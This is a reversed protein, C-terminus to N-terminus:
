VLERWKNEMLPPVYNKMQKILESPNDSVSILKINSENMFGETCTNKIMHLLPDFFNSINLIGIPKKHIGLQAWSLVEFLEEFTGLGGPLAIFGDSLEAMTQKREHMNEVEILKTLNEHVMEGSFLGKPMVGIVKGNNRLVENSIEGMLGIRSGGYVLEIKNEALIKGLLKASEKYESRLGLNSGSYVCIRKM